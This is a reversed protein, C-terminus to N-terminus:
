KRKISFNVLWIARNNEDWDLFQADGQAWIADYFTSNITVQGYGHLFEIITKLATYGERYDVNRSRVVVGSDYFNSTAKDFTKNPGAGPLDNIVVCNQYENGDPFRGVFLDTGFILGSISEGSIMAAIDESSPNM